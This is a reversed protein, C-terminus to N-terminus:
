KIGIPISSKIDVHARNELCNYSKGVDQETLTTYPPMGLLFSYMENLVEIIYHVCAEIQCNSTQM